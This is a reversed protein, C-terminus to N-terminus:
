VSVECAITHTVQSLKKIDIGDAFEPCSLCTVENCGDENERNEDDCGEDPVDM